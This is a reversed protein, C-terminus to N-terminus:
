EKPSTTAWQHPTSLFLKILDILAEGLLISRPAFHEEFAQIDSEM